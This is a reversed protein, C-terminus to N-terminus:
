KISNQDERRLYEEDSGFGLIVVLIVNKYQKSVEQVKERESKRKRDSEEVVQKVQKIKEDFM